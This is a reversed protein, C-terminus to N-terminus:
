ALRDRPFRCLSAPTLAEASYAYRTDDALGLFDGEHLFGTIQRRGDAMPKFVKMAGATVIFVHGAPQGEEFLTQGPFLDVNAVIAALENLTETPVGACVGAHRARCAKCRDVRGPKLGKLCIRDELSWVRNEGFAARKIEFRTM